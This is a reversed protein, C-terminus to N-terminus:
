RQNKGMQKMYNDVLNLVVKMDVQRVTDSCITEAFPYTQQVDPKPQGVVCGMYFIMTTKTLDRKEYFNRQYLVLIMLSVTLVIM